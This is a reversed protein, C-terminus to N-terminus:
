IASNFTAYYINIAGTDCVVKTYEDSEGVSIRIAALTKESDKQIATEQYTIEGDDFSHGVKVTGLEASESAYITLIGGYASTNHFIFVGKDTENDQGNISLYNDYQVTDTGITRAGKFFIEGKFSYKGYTAKTTDTYTGPRINIPEFITENEATPAPISYTPETKTTGEVYECTLANIKCSADSLIAYSGAQYFEWEYEAYELGVKQDVIFKDIASGDATLKALFLKRNPGQTGNSKGGSKAKLTLKGAGTTTFSISAKLSKDSTGDTKLCSNAEASIKKCKFFDGITFDEKTKAELTTMDVTKTITPIVSSSSVPAETKSSSSVVPTNSSAPSSTAVSLPASDSASTSTSSCGGALIALMAVAVPM